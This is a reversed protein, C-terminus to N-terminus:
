PMTMCMGNMRHPIRMHGQSQDPAKQHATMTGQNCAADPLMVASAPRVGAGSVVGIVVLSLILRRM